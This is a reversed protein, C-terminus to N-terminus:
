NQQILLNLREELIKIKSSTDLKYKKVNDLFLKTDVDLLELQKHLERTEIIIFTSMLFLLISLILFITLLMINLIFTSSLYFDIKKKFYFKVNTNRHM